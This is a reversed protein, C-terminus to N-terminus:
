SISCCANNMRAAKGKASRHNVSAEYMPQPIYPPMIAKPGHTFGLGRQAITRKLEDLRTRRIILPVISRKRVLKAAYNDDFEDISGSRSNATSPSASTSTSTSASTSVFGISSVFEREKQIALALPTYGAQNKQLLDLANFRNIRIFDNLDTLVQIVSRNPITNSYHTLSKYLQANFSSRKYENLIAIASEELPHINFIKELLAMDAIARQTNLPSLYNSYIRKAIEAPLPLSRVFIVHDHYHRNDNASVYLLTAVHRKLDYVTLSAEDSILRDYMLPLNMRESASKLAIEGVETLNNGRMDLCNLFKLETIDPPMKLLNKALRLKRLNKCSNVAPPTQLANDTLNLDFLSTLGTLKPSYTLMANSLYITRLAINASFNPPMKLPNYCLYIIELAVNAILIPPLSLNNYSIVFTKLGVLGTLVPPITLNNDCLDLRTIKKAVNPNNTLAAMLPAIDVDTLNSSDLNIETLTLDNANIAHIYRKVKHM